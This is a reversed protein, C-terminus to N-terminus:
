IKQWVVEIEKGRQLLRMIKKQRQLLEKQGTYLITVAYKDNQSQVSANKEDSLNKAGV